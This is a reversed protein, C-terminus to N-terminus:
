DELRGVFHFLDDPGALKEKSWAAQALVAELLGLAAGPNGGPRDASSRIVASVVEPAVEVDDALEHHALREMLIPKVEAPKASQLSIVEIRRHLLPYQKIEEPSFEPHGVGILKLGRDLWGALLPGAVDTHNLLMDFQEIVVLTRGMEWVLQFARHLRNDKHQWPTACACVAAGDIMVAQGVVGRLVLEAAATEVVLSKGCGSPGCLLPCNPAASRTIAQGARAVAEAQGATLRVSELRSQDVELLAGFRELEPHLGGSPSASLDPQGPKGGSPRPLPSDLWALLTLIAEDVDGAPKSAPVLALWRRYRPGSFLRRRVLDGGTYALDDDVFFEWHRQGQPRFLLANTHSKSFDAGVEVTNLQIMHDGPTSVGIDTAELLSALQPSPQYTTKV